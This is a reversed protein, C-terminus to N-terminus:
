MQRSLTKPGKFKELQVERGLRILTKNNGDGRLHRGAPSLVALM